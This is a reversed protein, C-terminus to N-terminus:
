NIVENFSKRRESQFEELSKGHEPFTEIFTHNDKRLADVVEVELSNDDHLKARLTWSGLKVNVFRPSIAPQDNAGLRLEGPIDLTLAVNPTSEM